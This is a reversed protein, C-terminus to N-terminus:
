KIKFSNMIKEGIAQYKDFQNLECTLTLVYAKQKIIWYYQEFKLNYQGETGTYIVKQYESDGMEIRKSEIINGNTILTKVQAESIEVYKDLNINLGTLDQIILNINELFLDQQSTQKSFLIFTTGMLGSNILEFSDPYQITFNFEDITKWDNPIDSQVNKPTTQGCAILSFFIATVGFLKIQKMIKNKTM